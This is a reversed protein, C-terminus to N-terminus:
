GGVPSVGIDVTGLTMRISVLQGLPVNGEFAVVVNFLQKIVRESFSVFVVGFNNRLTCGSELRSTGDHFNGDQYL